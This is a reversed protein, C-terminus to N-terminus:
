GVVFPAIRGKKKAKKQRCKKVYAFKEYHMVNTDCGMIAMCQM